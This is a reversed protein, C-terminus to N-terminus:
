SKRYPTNAVLSLDNLSLLGEDVMANRIEDALDAKASCAHVNFQAEEGKLVTVVAEKVSLEARKTDSLELKGANRYFVLANQLLMAANNAATPFKWPTQGLQYQLLSLDGRRSHTSAIKDGPLDPAKSAKALIQISSSLAKWQLPLSFNRDECERDNSGAVAHRFALLADAHTKMAEFSCPKEESFAFAEALKSRYTHVDILNERYQAESSAAIMRAMVLAIEVNRSEREPNTQIVDQVATQFVGDAWELKRRNEGNDLNGVIEYYSTLTALQALSTDLLTSNTVPEEVLAWQDQTGADISNLENGINDNIQKANEIDEMPIDEDPLDLVQQQFSVLRAQQVSFCKQFLELAEELHELAKLAPQEEDEAIQEGLSTLVQATNFLADANDAGLKLAYRHAELAELLVETIPQQVQKMLVPHTVIEYQIRALNYALDFSSPFRVLGSRYADVARSFFRMSKAADGARWKEGAEELDVATALVEDATEPPREHIKARQSKKLFSKPRSM